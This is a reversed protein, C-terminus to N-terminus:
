DPSGALIYAAWYFPHTYAGAHIMGISAARLSAAKAFRNNTRRANMWHQHFSIMLDASSSSEVRWRSAVTTPAGAAFAAWLMGNIGEGAAAEGRATDCASLVLLEANLNYRMLERAELFGDDSGTRALLARSYMPNRDDLIAHAALHVVRYQTAEARFRGENAADGTLILTPQGRYLKEIEHVQRAAEPLRPQGAPDGLALLAGGVPSSARLGSLRRAERLVEMSPAYAIIKDEIWFHGPRPLLAQFSVNWLPGDPIVMVAREASLEREAPAVLRSYLEGAEAAYALDHSALERRFSTSFNYSSLRAMISVVSLLSADSSGM